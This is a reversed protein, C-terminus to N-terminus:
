RYEGPKSRIRYMQSSRGMVKAVNEDWVSPLVSLALTCLSYKISLHYTFIPLLM